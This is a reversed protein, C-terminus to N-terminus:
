IIIKQEQKFIIKRKFNLVRKEISESIVDTNTLIEIECNDRIDKYKEYVLESNVNRFFTVIIFKLNSKWSNSEKLLSVIKKVEEENFNLEVIVVVIDENKLLLLSEIDVFYKIDSVNEVLENVITTRWTGCSWIIIISKNVKPIIEKITM